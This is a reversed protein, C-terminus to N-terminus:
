GGAHVGDKHKLVMADLAVVDNAACSFSSGNVCELCKWKYPLRREEQRKDWWYSLKILLWSFYVGALFGFIFANM